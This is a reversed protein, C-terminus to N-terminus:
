YVILQDENPVAAPTSVEPAGLTVNGNKYLIPMVDICGQGGPSSAPPPLGMVVLWQKDPTVSLSSIQVLPGGPMCSAPSVITNTVANFSVTNVGPVIAVGADTGVFATKGDTAVAYAHGSPAILTSTHGVTSTTINSFLWLSGQPTATTGTVLLGYNGGLPFVDTGERGKEALPDPPDSQTIQNVQTYGTLPPLDSFVDLHPGRTVLVNTDSSMALGATDEASFPPTGIPLQVYSPSSNFNNVQLLYNSGTAGLAVVATTANPEVVADAFCVMPNACQASFDFATGPNVTSGSLTFPILEHLGGTSLIGSNGSKVYGVSDLQFLGSSIQTAVPPPSPINLVSVQGAPSAAGNDAVLATYV